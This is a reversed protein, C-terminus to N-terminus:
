MLFKEDLSKGVNKIENVSKDKNKINENIEYVERAELRDEINELRADITFLIMFPPIVFVEIIFAIFTCVFGVLIILVFYPYVYGNDSLIKGVLNGVIIGAFFAAILFLWAAFGIISRHSETLFKILM